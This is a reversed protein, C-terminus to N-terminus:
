STRALYTWGRPKASSAITRPSSGIRGPRDGTALHLADLPALTSGFLRARGVAAETPTIMRNARSLVRLNDVRRIVDPNQELEAQVVSSTIWEAKRLLVLELIREVALAEDRVRQQSSDDTLRNIACTDLYITDIMQAM